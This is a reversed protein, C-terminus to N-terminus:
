LQLIALWVRLEEGLAAAAQTHADDLRAGLPPLGPRGRGSRPWASSPSAGLRRIVTRGLKWLALLHVVARARALQRPSYYLAYYLYLSRFYHLLMATARTSAGGIHVAQAAPEFVVRWGSQRLRRCLDTEEWYFYYQENLLGVADLAARRLVVCAGNLWDADRCTMHPSAIALCDRAGPIRRILGWLTSQELFLVFPTPDNHCSPQLSGDINRLQPGVLGIRPDADLTASLVKLLNPKIFCDNNLLLLYRGRAQRLGVNMAHSFGYNRDLRVLEVSPTSTGVDDASGDTSGNDVVIIQLCLDGAADYLAAMCRPLVAAGNYSVIIASLDYMM